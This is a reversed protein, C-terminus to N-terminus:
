PCVLGDASTEKVYKACLFTQILEVGQHRSLLEPVVALLVALVFLDLLLALAQGAVGVGDDLVGTENGARPGM